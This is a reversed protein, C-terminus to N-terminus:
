IQEHQKCKKYKVDENEKEEVFIYKDRKLHLFKQPNLAIRLIIYLQM